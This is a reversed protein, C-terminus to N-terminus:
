FARLLALHIEITVATEKKERTFLFWPRVYSYAPPQPPNKGSMCYYLVSRMGAPILLQSEMNSSVDQPLPRFKAYEILLGAVGAMIATTTSTGDRRKLNVDNEDEPRDAAEIQEGITSLTNEWKLDGGPSFHSQSGHYTCSNVRIVESMTAPFGVQNSHLHRDNSAAAFFLTSRSANAIRIADAIRANWQDLAFSM